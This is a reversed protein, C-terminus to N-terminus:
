PNRQKAIAVSKELWDRASRSKRYGLRRYWAELQAQDMEDDLSHAKLRIHKCGLKLALSEASDLLQTALGYQRFRPLVFIELVYGVGKDSWDDYSLLAAEEQDM